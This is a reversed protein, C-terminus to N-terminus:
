MGLHASSAVPATFTSTATSASTAECPLYPGTGARDQEPEHALKGRKAERSSEEEPATSMINILIHPTPSTVYKKPHRTSRCRLRGFFFFPLSNNSDKLVITFNGGFNQLVGLVQAKKERFSLM